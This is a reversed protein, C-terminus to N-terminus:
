RVFIQPHCAAIVKRVLLKTERDMAVWRQAMAQRQGLAATDKPLRKAAIVQTWLGGNDGGCVYSLEIM